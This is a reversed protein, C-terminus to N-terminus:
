VAAGDPMELTIKGLKGSRFEELITKGMRELDPEAMKKMCNKKRAIETLLEVPHSVDDLSLGYRTRVPDGPFGSLTELLKESLTVEDVVDSSVAGTFALCEGVKEDDFKPWLIGPTDLLDITKNLRIWQTGRTVGPLNGTKSVAKGAMSNIFTSKGVNPIGAVM